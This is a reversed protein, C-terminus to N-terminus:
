GVEELIRFVNNICSPYCISISSTTVKRMIKLSRIFIKSLIFTFLRTSMLHDYLDKWNHKSVSRPFALIIHACIVIKTSCINKTDTRSIM